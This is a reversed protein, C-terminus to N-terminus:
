ENNISKFLNLYLKSISNTTYKERDKLQERKLDIYNSNHKDIAKKMVSILSELNNNEFLYGTENDRIDNKFEELDSAIIPINYNLGIKLQGSQSIASYPLIFYHSTGFLNSIDENPIQEIRLDFIDPYKILKKYYNWNDCSGCIKVIFNEYGEEYLSCAAEILLGINKSKIIRGFNMFVIRNKPPLQTSIGFDKLTLPILYTKKCYLKEFITQQTKSYVHYYKFKKYLYNFYMNTIVGHRMGSHSVAQHVTFITKEQPLLLQSIFALYPFGQYNIYYYDSKDKKLRTIINWYFVINIPNRLRKKQIYFHVTVNNPISKLIENKSYRSKQSPLVIHWCIQYHNSLLPIIPLDVDLFYDGTIWSIQKM